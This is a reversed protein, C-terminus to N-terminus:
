KDYAGLEDKINIPHRPKTVKEWLYETGVRGFIDLFCYRGYSFTLKWSLIRPSTAKITNGPIFLIYGLLKGHYNNNFLVFTNEKQFETLANYVNKSFLSTDLRLPRIRLASFNNSNLFACLDYIEEKALRFSETKSLNNKVDISFIYNSLIAETQASDNLQENTDGRASKKDSNSNSGSSDVLVVSNIRIFNEAHNLFGTFFNVYAKEKSNFSSEGQSFTHGSMMILLQLLFYKYRHM